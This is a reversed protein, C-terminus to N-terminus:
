TILLLYCVKRPKKRSLANGNSNNSTQAIVKDYLKPMTDMEEMANTETVSAAVAAALPKLVRIRDSTVGKEICVKGDVLEDYQVNYTAAESMAAMAQRESEFGSLPYNISMIAGLFSHKETDKACDIEDGDESWIM